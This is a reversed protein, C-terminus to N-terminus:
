RPWRSGFRRRALTQTSAVWGGPVREDGKRIAEISKGYDLKPDM